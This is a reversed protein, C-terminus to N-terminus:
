KGWSVVREDVSDYKFEIGKLAEELFPQKESGDPRMRWLEWKGREDTLYVIWQGDPSWSPAVSNVPRDALPWSRTIQTRGQGDDNVVVIEWHDHSKTQFAIRRGDPSWAPSRDLQYDTIRWKNWDDLVNGMGPKEGTIFLGRDSSYVIRDDDTATGWAPSFSFDHGLLDKFEQGDLGVSAVKWWPHRPGEYVLLKSSGGMYQKYSEPLRAYIELQTYDGTEFTFALRKGDPSWTPSKLGSRDWGYVLQEGTGDANIVFLGRPTGDWRAFAVKTGDPSLAPDLGTTLKRLGTGDANVIYIDGGSSVQFVLKGVVDSESVSSSVAEPSADVSINSGKPAPSEPVDVIQPVDKLSGSITVYRDQGTIWGKGDPGDAFEVQLWGTASHVGLVGVKAGELLVGIASFSVGPGERVNLSPVKIEAWVGGEAGAPLAPAVGGLLLSLLLIQICFITKGKM